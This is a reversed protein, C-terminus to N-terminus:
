KVIHGPLVFFLLLKSGVTDLWIPTHGRGLRVAARVRNLKAGTSSGSTLGSPLAAAMRGRNANGARRHANKDRRPAVLLDPTLSVM